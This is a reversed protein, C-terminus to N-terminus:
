PGDMFQTTEFNAIKTTKKSFNASKSGEERSVVYNISPGKGQKALRDNDSGIPSAKQDGKVSQHYQSLDLVNVYKSLDM